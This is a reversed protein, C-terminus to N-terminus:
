LCDESIYLKETKQIEAFEKASHISLSSEGGCFVYGDPAIVEAVPNGIERERQTLKIWEVECRMGDITIFERM